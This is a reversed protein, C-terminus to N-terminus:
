KELEQDHGVQASKLLAIQEVYARCQAELYELKRQPAKAERNAGLSTGSERQGEFM